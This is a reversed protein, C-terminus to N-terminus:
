FGGGANELSDLSCKSQMCKTIHAVTVNFTPAEPRSAPPGTTAHVRSRPAHSPPTVFVRSWASGDAEHEPATPACPRVDGMGLWPRGGGALPSVDSGPPFGLTPPHVLSEAFTPSPVREVSAADPFIM